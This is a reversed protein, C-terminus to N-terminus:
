GGFMDFVLGGTRWLVAPVFRLCSSVCVGEFALLVM